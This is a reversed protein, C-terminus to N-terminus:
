FQWGSKCLLASVNLWGVAYELWRHAAHRLPCNVGVSVHHLVRRCLGFCYGHTVLLFTGVLSTAVAAFVLKGSRKKRMLAFWVVILTPSLFQLITATAANSKEITLLFTLQVTLAGFLTFALLSIVDQRHKVIGFIKDGHMFSLILLILGSFLLRLMTLSESSIHSQEMIYQACVGSSGWLVAAFLVYWMGKRSVSM